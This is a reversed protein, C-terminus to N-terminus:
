TVLSLPSLPMLDDLPGMRMGVRSYVESVDPQERAISELVGISTLPLGQYQQMGYTPTSLVAPAQMHVSGDSNLWCKNAGITIKPMPDLFQIEKDLKHKRAPGCVLRVGNRITAATPTVNGALYLRSKSIEGFLANLIPGLVSISTCSIVGNGDRKVSRPNVHVKSGSGYTFVDTYDYVSVIHKIRPDNDSPVSLYIVNWIESEPLTCKVGVVEVAVPVKPMKIKIIRPLPDRAGYTFLEHGVVGEESLLAQRFEDASSIIEVAFERGYAAIIADMREHWECKKLGKSTEFVADFIKIEYTYNETDLEGDEKVCAGSLLDELCSLVRGSPYKKKAVFEFHIANASFRGYLHCKLPCLKEAFHKNVYKGVAKLMSCGSDLMVHGEKSFCLIQLFDDLALIGRVGDAKKSCGGRFVKLPASGTSILAYPMTVPRGYGRLQLKSLSM